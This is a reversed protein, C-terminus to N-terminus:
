IWLNWPKMEARPKQNKKLIEAITEMIKNFYYQLTIGM